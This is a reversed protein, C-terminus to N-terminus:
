DKLNYYKKVAEYDSYDVAAKRGTRLDNAPIVLIRTTTFVDSGTGAVRGIYISQTTTSNATYTRYSNSGGTFWGPLAYTNGGTNSVYVFYASNDFIAKTITTPLNYQLDSGTHTRSTYSIQVVNANGTAGTTGTDGKDGKAGTAGIAGAAGVAGTAGIPGVEGKEAKCADMFIVAAVVALMAFIRTITKM